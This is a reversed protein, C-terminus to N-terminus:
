RPACVCVCVRSGEGKRFLERLHLKLERISMEVNGSGLNNPGRRPHATTWVSVYPVWTRLFYTALAASAFPNTIPQGVEWDGALVTFSVDFPRMKMHLDGNTKERVHILVDDGTGAIVVTFNIAHLGTKFFGGTQQQTTDGDDAAAAAADASIEKDIAADTTEKEVEGEIDRADEREADRARVDEDENHQAAAGDAAAAAAVAAYGAAAAEADAGVADARAVAAAAAATDKVASKAARAAAGEAGAVAAAAAADAAADAAASAAARAATGATARRQAALAARTNLPLHHDLRAITLVMGSEAPVAPLDETLM